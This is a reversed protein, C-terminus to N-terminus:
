AVLKKFVTVLENKWRTAPGAVVGVQIMRTLEAIAHVVQGTELIRACMRGRFLVVAVHRYFRPAAASQRSWAPIPM